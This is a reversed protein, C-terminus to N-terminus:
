YCVINWLRVIRRLLPHHLNFLIVGVNINYYQKMEFDHVQHAMVMKDDPILLSVDRDFDYMMADSDLILLYDYQLQMAEQVLIVKSYTARSPKPIRVTTDFVTQYAIGRLTVYDFAYKRAYAVNVTSTLNLLTGYLADSGSDYQSMLLNNKSPTTRTSSSSSSSNTTTTTTDILTGDNKSRVDTSTKTNSYDRTQHFRKWEWTVEGGRNSLLSSPLSWTSANYHRHHLDETPRTYTTITTNTNQWMWHFQITILVLIIVLCIHKTVKRQVHVMWLTTSSTSGGGSSTSRAGSASCTTPSGNNTGCTRTTSTITTYIYCPKRCNQNRVLASRGSDGQDLTTTSPLRYSSIMSSRPSKQSSFGSTGSHTPVGGDGGGTADCKSPHCPDHANSHHNAVVVPHEQQHGDYM